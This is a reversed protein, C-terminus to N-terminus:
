SGRPGHFTAAYYTQVDVREVELDSVSRARAFLHEAFRLTEDNYRSVDYACVVRGTVLIDILADLMDVFVLSRRHGPHALTFGVYYIAGRAAHEPYLRAHFESSVWPVAALDTALTTLGAARGEHDHALVKLIREDRMEEEFEERTLVHRAAARTELPEFAALYTPWFEDILDDSLTRSTSVQARGPRTVLGVM